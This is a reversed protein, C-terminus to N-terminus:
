VGLVRRLYPSAFRRLPDFHNRAAQFEAWRPYLAALEPEGLAHLKGWGPLGGHARLVAEAERFQPGSTAPLLDLPASLTLAAHGEGPPTGLPLADPGVFQVRVPLPPGGVRALTARLDRLAATLAALPVAYELERAPPAAALLAQRPSLRQTGGRERGLRRERLGELLAPLPGPGGSAPSAEEPARNLPEDTPWSRRLRVAEGDEQEPHWVLSVLPAAQAYEPGLALVEGWSVRQTSVQLTRAPEVALTVRTLIGLAGLSLAAAGWHGGGGPTLRHVQGRGDVLELALAAAGLRPLTLGSSHAGAALAGGVTQAAQGGLGKLTLGRRELAATLEGLPTGAQVTVTGAAEDLGDLGRLHATSLMVERGAALPSLATGAGVPRVQLGSAEARLVAAAVEATDRPAAWVQPSAQVTRARNQWAPPNM